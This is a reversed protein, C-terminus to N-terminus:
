VPRSLRALQRGSIGVATARARPISGVQGGDSLASSRKNSAFRASVPSAQDFCGLVIVPISKVKAGCLDTVRAASNASVGAAAAAMQCAM